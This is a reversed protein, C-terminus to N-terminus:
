LRKHWPQVEYKLYAIHRRHSKPFLFVGTRASITLVPAHTNLHHIL